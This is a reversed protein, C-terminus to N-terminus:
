LQQGPNAAQWKAVKAAIKDGDIVDHQGRWIDETEPTSKKGEDKKNDPTIIFRNDLEKMKLASLADIEAKLMARNKVTRETQPMSALEADLKLNDQIKAVIEAIKAESPTLEKASDQGQPGAQPGGSEIKNMNM